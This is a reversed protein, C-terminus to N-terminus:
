KFAQETFLERFSGKMKQNGSHISNGQATISLNPIAQGAQFYKSLIIGGAGRSFNKAVVPDTTWSTWISYNDGEAHLDQSRHRGKLTSVIRLGNPVAVGMLGQSYM